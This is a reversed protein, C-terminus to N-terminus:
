ALGEEHHAVALMDELTAAIRSVVEDFSRGVRVWTQGGATIHAEWFGQRIRKISMTPEFKM